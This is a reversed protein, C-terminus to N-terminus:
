PNIFRMGKGNFGEFHLESEFEECIKRATDRRINTRKGNSMLWVRYNRGETCHM